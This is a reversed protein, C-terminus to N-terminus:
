QRGAHLYYSMTILMMTSKEKRDLGKFIDGIALDTSGSVAPWDSIPTGMDPTCVLTHFIVSVLSSDHVNTHGCTWDKLVSCGDLAASTTAV